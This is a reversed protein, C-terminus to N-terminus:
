KKKNRQIPKTIFHSVIPPDNDIHFSRVKTELERDAVTIREHQRLHEEWSESIFTEIYISPNEADFYLCWRIAGDRKRIKSWEGMIKAFEDKKRLDIKYKITILVPKQEVDPQIIVNPIPWHMSSSNDIEGNRMLRYKTITLVGLMLGIASLILAIRIDFQVSVQGWVTSGIATGAQFVAQYISFLRTAVWKNGVKIMSYNFSSLLMIWGIGSGFMVICVQFFNDLQSLLIMTIAFFISAAVVLWDISIIQRIKPLIFTGGIIAGLGFVGLLLGYEYSNFGLSDRALSPLLAFLASGFIIFATARILVPKVESSNILYRIGARIASNIHEPPLTTREQPTQWRRLVFIIGIFSLANILFVAWPGIFAIIFGGITPGIARGINMGIGGLTITIQVEEKTVMELSLRILLPMSLAGGLGLAFTLIVLLLPTTINFLALFALISAIVLMYGQSFILLKNRNLVDGLAGGPLAMVVIALSAATQVLAVLLASNSLSTMLWMAGTDHMSTGINSVVTAIWLARYIPHNIIPDWGSKNELVKKPGIDDKQSDTNDKM